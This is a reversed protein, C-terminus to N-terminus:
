IQCPQNLLLWYLGLGQVTKILGEFEVPKVVYSNVGLRYSEFIDKDERSSTLLVVPILRLREDSKIRRLVELGDVKPMKLDLLILKPCGPMERGLYPGERFFFHIAEEGDQLHLLPNPIGNKRLARIVLDADDPNDEVLVIDAKTEITM